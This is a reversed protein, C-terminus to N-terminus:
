TIKTAVLGGSDNITIQYNTGNPSQLILMSVPVNIAFDNEGWDFVPTTKVSKEASSIIMLQDAAQAQFTYKNQYDLNSLSISATYTNGSLTATVNNWSGYSGNNAKMRYRVTLTNNKAGFSANFYNGNITITTEGSTTPMTAECNCTLKIYNVLTRNVTKTTTNGRSDTATFVFNGSEVNTLTGSNATASKGGCTVKQSSLTAEKVASAGITYQANSFYKIMRQNSGSLAITTANSDIVIPSITPNGNVISLTKSASSYYTIGNLVTKVYFIVTSSNATSTAARLITRESNTLNFTYTSGTKSIDRYAIDDTAGTLSICAQLTTVTTGAKNTYTITPNEEDTFNPASTITAQRPIATLTGTGSGSKDTISVGSFVLGTFTMFFSYSFTKTGDNNHTIVTSGSALTKTENAGIGHSVKGSYYTGNITVNWPKKINSEIKGSSGIAVLQMKWSVTTTNDAISQSAESWSFVLNDYETVKVTTSGSAAM